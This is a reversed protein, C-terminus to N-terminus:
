YHPTTGFALAACANLHKLEVNSFGTKMARRALAPRTAASEVDLATGVAFSDLINIASIFVRNFVGSVYVLGVTFRAIAHRWNCGVLSSAAAPVEM